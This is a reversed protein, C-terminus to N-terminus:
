FRFSQESIFWKSDYSISDTDSITKDVYTPQTVIKGMPIRCRHVADYSTRTDAKLPGSSLGQAGFKSKM